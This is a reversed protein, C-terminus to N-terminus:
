KTYTRDINEQTFMLETPGCAIIERNVMIVHDFYDAVTSLDHHVSVVTKGEDRLHKLCAVLSHETTVDVAAFPEDLMFVSPGQVLARAIFARQQQGGSLEGIQRKALDYIGVQDLAASTAVRQKCGPRVFWKLHGYTGMMVLDFVTIPFDWDVTARQPVYAVDRGTCIGGAFHVRGSLKPVLGLMSKVLTSKGAGNPGIIATMSGSPIAVCADWLVPDADYAVTLDSTEIAMKPRERNMNQDGALPHGFADDRDVADDRDLADADAFSRTRRPPVDIATPTAANTPRSTPSQRPQPKGLLTRIM